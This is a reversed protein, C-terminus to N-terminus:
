EGNKVVRGTAVGKSTSVAVFYLGMSWESVNLEFTNVGQVLSVEKSIVLQGVTNYVNLIAAQSEDVSYRVNVKSNAPNPFVVLDGPSQIGEDFSDKFSIINSCPVVYDILRITDPNASLTQWQDIFNVLLDIKPNSLNSVEARGTVYHANTNYQLNSISVNKDFSRVDTIYSNTIYSTIQFNYLSKGNNSGVCNHSLHFGPCESALVQKCCEVQMPYNISIERTGYSSPPQIGINDQRLGITYTGDMQPFFYTTDGFFQPIVHGNPDTLHITYVSSCDANGVTIMYYKRGLRWRSLSNPNIIQNACILGCEEDYVCFEKVNITPVKVNLTNSDIYDTFSKDDTILYYGDSSDPTEVGPICDNREVYNITLTGPIMLFGNGGHYDRRRCFFHDFWMKRCDASLVGPQGFWRNDDYGWTLSTYGNSPNGGLFMCAPDCPQQCVVELGPVPAIGANGDWHVLYPVQEYTCGLPSVGGTSGGASNITCPDVVAPFPEGACDFNNFAQLDEPDIPQDCDNGDGTVPVGNISGIERPRMARSDFDFILQDTNGVKASLGNDIPKYPVEGSILVFTGKEAAYDRMANTLQFLLEHGPDTIEDSYIRYLGMHIATYGFDIFCAAQFLFWMRTEVKSIDFEQNPKLMRSPTFYQGHYYFDELTENPNDPSPLFRDQKFAKFYLDIITSPIHRNVGDADNVDIAAQFNGPERIEAVNAQVVPRMKGLCDYAYNIDNILQQGYCYYPNGPYIEHEHYAYTFARGLFTIDNEAFFQILEAYKDPCYNTGCHNYPEICNVEDTPASGLCGQAINFKNVWQAEASRALLRTVGIACTADDDPDQSNYIYPDNFKQVTNPDCHLRDVVAKTIPAPSSFCPPFIGQAIVHNGLLCLVLVSFFKFKHAFFSMQPHFIIKIKIM